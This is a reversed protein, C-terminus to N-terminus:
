PESWEAVSSDARGLGIEHRSVGVAIPRGLDAALRRTLETNASRAERHIRSRRRILFVKLKVVALSYSCRENM